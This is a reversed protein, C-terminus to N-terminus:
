DMQHGAYHSARRDGAHKWREVDTGGRPEESLCAEEEERRQGGVEKGATEQGTNPKSREFHEIEM